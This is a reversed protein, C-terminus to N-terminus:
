SALLNIIIIRWREINSVQSFNAQIRKSEAFDKLMVACTSFHEEGFRLKLFEINVIERDHSLIAHRHSSLSTLQQSILVYKEVNFDKQQLLRDALLTRYENVFTETNGYISILLHM